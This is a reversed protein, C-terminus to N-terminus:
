RRLYEAGDLTKVETERCVECLEGCARGDRERRVGGGDREERGCRERLEEM